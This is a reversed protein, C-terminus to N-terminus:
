HNKITHTYKPEVFQEMELPDAAVPKFPSSDAIGKLELMASRNVGEAAEEFIEDVVAGFFDAFDRSTSIEINELRPNENLNMSTRVVVDWKENRIVMFKAHCRIARICDAGFSERLHHCYAPKRTEFSRDIVLRFKTIKAHQLLDKSREIHADAATWTCLDVSAPGTQALIAVLADILSFQGFTLIFTDQDQELKGIAQEASAHRALSVSRKSPKKFTKTKAM